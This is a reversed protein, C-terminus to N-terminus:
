ILGSLESQAVMLMFYGGLIIRAEVLSVFAGMTWALGLGTIPNIPDDAMLGVWIHMSGMLLFGFILLLRGM